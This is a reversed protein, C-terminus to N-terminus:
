LKIKDLKKYVDEEMYSIEKLMDGLMGYDETPKSRSKCNRAGIYSFERWKNAAKGM